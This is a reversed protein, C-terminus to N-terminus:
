WAEDLDLAVAAEDDVLAGADEAANAFAMLDGRIRGFPAGAEDATRVVQVAKAYAGDLKDQAKDYNGERAYRRADLARTWGLFLDTSMNGRAEDDYKVTTGELSRELDRLARQARSAAGVVQRLKAQERQSASCITITESSSM